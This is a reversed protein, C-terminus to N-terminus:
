TNKLVACFYVGAVPLLLVRHSRCCAAGQQRRRQGAVSGGSRRRDRQVASRNGARDLDVAECRRDVQVGGCGAGFLVRLGLLGTCSAGDQPVSQDAERDAASGTCGHAHSSIVVRVDEVAEPDSTYAGDDAHDGEESCSSIPFFSPDDHLHLLHKCRDGRDRGYDRQRDVTNGRADVVSGSVSGELLMGVDVNHSDGAILTTSAITPAFGPARAIVVTPGPPLGDFSFSGNETFMANSHLNVSYDTVVSVYADAVARRTAMDYASGSLSAPPPLEIRLTSDSSRDYGISITTFGSKSASIGGPDLRSENNGEAIGGPAARRAM